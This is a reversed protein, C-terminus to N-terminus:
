QSGIYRVLWSCCEPTYDPLWRAVCLVCMTCLGCLSLGIGVALRTYKRYYFTQKQRMAEYQDIYRATAGGEEIVGSSSGRGLLNNVWRKIRSQCAGARDKHACTQLPTLGYGDCWCSLMKRFDDGTCTYLAYYFTYLGLVRDTLFREVCQHGEKRRQLIGSLLVDLDGRNFVGYDMNAHLVRCVEKRGSARMIQNTISIVNNEFNAKSQAIDSARLRAWKEVRSREAKDRAVLHAGKVAGYAVGPYKWVGEKEGSKVFNAFSDLDGVIDYSFRSLILYLEQGAVSSRPVGWCSSMAFALYNLQYRFM